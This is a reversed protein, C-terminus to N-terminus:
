KKENKGGRPLKDKKIKCNNKNVFDIFENSMEVRSKLNIEQQVKKDNEEFEKKLEETISKFSKAM